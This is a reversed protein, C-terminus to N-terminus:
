LQQDKMLKEDEAVKELTNEGKTNFNMDYNILIGNLNDRLLM